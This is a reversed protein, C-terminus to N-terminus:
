KKININGGGLVLTPPASAAVDMQSDYIIQGTAQNWIKIRAKDPLKKGDVKGDIGTM